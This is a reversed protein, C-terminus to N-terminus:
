KKNKIVTLMEINDVNVFVIDNKGSIDLDNKLVKELPYVTADTVPIFRHVQSKIYDSARSGPMVHIYGIIIASNTKIKINIKETPVKLTM